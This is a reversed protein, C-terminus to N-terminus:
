WGDLSYLKSYKPQNGAMIAAAATDILSAYVKESIWFLFMGIWFSLRRRTMKQQGLRSSNSVEM